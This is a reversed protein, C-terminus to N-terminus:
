SVKPQRSISVYLRIIKLKESQMVQILIELVEDHQQNLIDLSVHNCRIFCFKLIAVAFIEESFLRSM